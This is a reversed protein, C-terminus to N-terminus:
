TKVKHRMLRARAVIEAAINGAAGARNDVIVNQFLLESLKGSLVRAASDLSSGVPFGVLMRIPKTPYNQAMGYAVSQLAVTIVLALRGM